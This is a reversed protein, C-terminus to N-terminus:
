RPTETANAPNSLTEALSPQPTESPKPIDVAVTLDVRRNLARGSENPEGNPLANPAIPNQEGFAIITIRDEAVGNEVLWDRVAEARARSARLNAEDSGGADSHGRLIVAGGRAMQPSRAVTALEAMAAESLEADNGFQIRTELPALVEETKLAEQFEPRFISRPEGDAQAETPQPAPTPPAADCATLAALAVGVLAGSIGRTVRRTM